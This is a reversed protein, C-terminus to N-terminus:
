ARPTAGPSRAATRRGRCPSPTGRPPSTAATRPRSSAAGAGAGGSFPVIGIVNNPIGAPPSARYSELAVKNGTSAVDARKLEFGAAPSIWPASGDTFPANPADQISIASGDSHVLRRGFFTGQRAGSTEFPAILGFDTNTTTYWTGRALSLCFYYIGGSTGSLM